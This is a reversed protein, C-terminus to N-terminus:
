DRVLKQVHSALSGAAEHAAFDQLPAIRLGPSSAQLRGSSQPGAGSHDTQSGTLECRFTTKTWPQITDPRIKEESTSASGPTRAMM